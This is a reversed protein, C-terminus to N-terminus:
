VLNEGFDAFFLNSEKYVTSEQYSSCEFVRVVRYTSSKELDRSNVLGKSAFFDRFSSFEFMEIPRVKKETGVSFEERYSSSKEFIKLFFEFLRQLEFTQTEFTKSFNSNEFCLLFAHFVFFM